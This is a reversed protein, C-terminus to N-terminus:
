FNLDITIPLKNYYLKYLVGNTNWDSVLSLSNISKLDFGKQINKFSHDIGLTVLVLIFM